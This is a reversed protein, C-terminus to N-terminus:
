KPPASKDPTATASKDPASVSKKRKRRKQLVLLVILIVGLGAFIPIVLQCLHGADTSRVCFTGSTGQMTLLLYHGSQTADVEQWVGNEYLWVTGLDGRCLLRLPVSDTEAVDSGTLTIEYVSTDEVDAAISEPPTLSSKTVHLAADDTFQGDCLALSLNGSTEASAVVTVWKTYVADISLDSLKGSVDFKPWVGYYGDKEPVDPLKLLALDEGYQFPLIDVIKDDARLTLTFSVLEAPLDSRTRLDDFRVSQACSEYSIGDVGATGTDVFVNGRVRGSGVDANGAIAGVYESGKDVTVIACCTLLTKGSGAIGGVNDGGSITCKAYSERVTASSLGAVGGVDDGNTSEVDGYNESRFVTGLDMRGVIGGICDKKGSVTGRNLCSQVVAKTEYTSNYSITSDDEPDTDYEVAMSGAIGGVNRDGTVAGTSRSDAIKGQRVADTDIDSTDELYDSLNTSLNPHELQDMMDLLLDFVVNFQNSIARIDASLVKGSSHVEGNLVDMQESLSALSAYLNDGAARYDDGLTAFTVGGKTLEDLAGSMNKFASSMSRSVSAASNAVKQLQEAADGLQGSLTKSYELASSLHTLASSADDSATKLDDMASSLETLASQMQDWDIDINADLDALATSIKGLAKAADGTASVLDTLATRADDTVIKNWDGGLATNLADLATSVKGMATSLEGFGASLRAVADDVASQDKIIVAAKLDDMATGIKDAANGMATSAAKLDDTAGKLETLMSGATNSAKDLTGLATELQDSLTALNDAADGLDDVAPKLKDLANTVDASLTNLSNVNGDVFDATKDLLTKSSDRASDTCTGIDTLRASITDNAGDADDLAQNVLANLKDLETRLRTVTDTDGSVILDPEAQGVIGGVDKRGQVSGSNVCGALYGSQRGVIGGVNYGVHPYGVSGTNTCSQVIGSSYGAVGGMDTRSGPLNESDGSEGSSSSSLDSLNDLASDVDLDDLSITSDASSTNVSCHSFCSILTGLNRGCVGGASTDALVNGDARCSLIQGSERNVGVIGGVSSDGEVTGSFSCSELTGSNDGCIGGIITRSGQPALAGQVVLNKVVGGSQVYRFLGQHSGSVTLRYGSITHGGGDFTGGFTPISTFSSGTLNLSCTLTVTKGQSWSDLSCSKAFDEFDSVSSIVVTSGSQSLAQAAPASSSFLLLVVMALACLKQKRM